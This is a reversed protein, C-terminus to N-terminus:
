PIEGDDMIGAPLGSSGGREREREREKEKEIDKERGRESLLVPEIAM